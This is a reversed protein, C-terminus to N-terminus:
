ILRYMYYGRHKLSIFGIINNEHCDKPLLLLLLSISYFLYQAVNKISKLSMDGHRPTYNILRIMNVKNDYTKAMHGHQCATM